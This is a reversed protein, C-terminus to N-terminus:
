SSQVKYAESKTGLVILREKISVKSFTNSFTIEGPIKKEETIMNKVMEEFTIEAYAEGNLQLPIVFFKIKIDDFEEPDKNHSKMLYLQLQVYGLIDASSLTFDMNENLEYHKVDIAVIENHMPLMYFGPRKANQNKMTPPYSWSEQHVHIFGQEIKEFHLIALIEGTDGKYSSTTKLYEDKLLNLMENKNKM